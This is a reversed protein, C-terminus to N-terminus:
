GQQQIGMNSLVQAVRKAVEEDNKNKQKTLAEVEKQTKLSEERLLSTQEETHQRLTREAETAENLRLNASDMLAQADSALKQVNEVKQCASERSSIDKLKSDASVERQLVNKERVDISETRQNYKVIISRADDLTKHLDNVLSSLTAIAPTDEAVENVQPLSVEPAEIKEVEQEQENEM